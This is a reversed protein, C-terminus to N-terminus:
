PKEGGKMLKDLRNLGEIPLQYNTRMSLARQYDNRANQVDGMLEYCYGRNYLAEVYTPDAELAQSFYKVGERYVQLYFLHIYGLNFYAYKYKPDIQIINRYLEMAKNFDETEQYYMALNYLAEISQPRINLASNFYDVALKDKKLSLIVGLQIYADYYGQDLDCAKQFAKIAHVTDGQEKLAFGNIFYAKASNEDSEIADATYKYVMSYDRFYLSLEALKLYAETYESDLSIAKELAEKCNKVMNKTLYVDSLLVYYKALNPKLEIAKNIDSLAKDPVKKELFLTARKWFLEANGPDQTIQDNLKQIEAPVSDQVVAKEEKGTHQCSAMFCVWFCLVLSPLIGFRM